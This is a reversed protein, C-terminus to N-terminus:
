AEAIRETQGERESALSSQIEPFLKSLMVPTNARLWDAMEREENLNQSLAPIADSVNMQQALQIMMDYMVVEANEIMADEKAGRLEEEGPTTSRKLANSINKPATPVLLRASNKTAKGGLNTILQRLREQQEKTEELHHKLQQKAEPLNTEKTRSQLRTVAANEIALAENLYIVLKDNPTMEKGNENKARRQTM